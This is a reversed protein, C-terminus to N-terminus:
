GKGNRINTNHLNEREAQLMTKQYSEEDTQSRGELCIRAGNYEMFCFRCRRQIMRLYPTRYRSTIAAKAAKIMTRVDIM